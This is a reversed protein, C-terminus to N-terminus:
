SKIALILSESPPQPKQQEFGCLGRVPNAPCARKGFRICDLPRFSIRMRANMLGMCWRRSGMRHM